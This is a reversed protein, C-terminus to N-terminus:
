RWKDRLIVHCLRYPEKLAAPLATNQEAGSLADRSLELGCGAEWYWSGSMHMSADWASRVMVGCTRLVRGWLHSVTSQVM